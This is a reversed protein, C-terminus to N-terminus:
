FKNSKIYYNNLLTLIIKFINQIDLSSELINKNSFVKKWGEYWKLLEDMKPSQTLWLKFTEIFRPFFNQLFIETLQNITILESWIFLIKISDIKQEKPNIEIKSVIYNLKPIIFKSLFIEWYDETFFKKWPSLISFFKLDELSCNLAYKEM